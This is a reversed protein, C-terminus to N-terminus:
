YIYFHINNKIEIKAIEDIIDQRLDNFAENIGEISFIKDRVFKERDEMSLSRFRWDDSDILKSWKRKGKNRYSVRGNFETKYSTEFSLSINYEVDNVKIIKEKIM